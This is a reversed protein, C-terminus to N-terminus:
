ESSIARLIKWHVNITTFIKVSIMRFSKRLRNTKLMNILESKSEYYAKRTQSRKRKSLRLLARKKLMERKFLSETRMLQNQATIFVLLYRLFILCVFHRRKITKEAFKMWFEIFQFSRFRFPIRFNIIMVDFSFCCIGLDCTTMMPLAILILDAKSVIM